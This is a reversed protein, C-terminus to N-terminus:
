SYVSDGMKKLFYREFCNCYADVNNRKVKRESPMIYVENGLVQVGGLFEAPKRSNGGSFCRVVFEQKSDNIVLNAGNGKECVYDKCIDSVRKKLNEM